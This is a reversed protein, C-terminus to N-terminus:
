REGSWSSLINKIAQQHRLQYDKLLARDTNDQACKAFAIKDYDSSLELDFCPVKYKHFFWASLSGSTCGFQLWKNNYAKDPCLGQGYVKIFNECQRRYIDNNQGTAFVLAPLGSISSLCHFSFVARPVYKSFLDMVARTEPESAPYRGRYTVSSTDSSKLGYGYEVKDWDAPFNRNLDVGATNKRIYWPVGEVMKERSDINVSPIAVIKTKNFFEINKKLLKEIAPIILKPDAKARMFRM